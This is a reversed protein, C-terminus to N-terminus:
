SFAFNKIKSKVVKSTTKPSIFFCAQIFVCLFWWFALVLSNRFTCADWSSAFTYSWITIGMTRLFVVVIDWPSFSSVWKHYLYVQQCMFTHTYYLKLCATLFFVILLGLVFFLRAILPFHRLKCLHYM